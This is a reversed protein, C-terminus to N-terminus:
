GRYPNIGADFGVDPSDNYTIISRSTDRLLTTQPGPEDDEACGPDPVYELKDFRNSPNGAAGRGRVPPRGDM